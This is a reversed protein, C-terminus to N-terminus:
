ATKASKRRQNPWRELTEVWKQFSARRYFIRKGIPVYPLGNPMARWRKVTRVSVGIEKAMDAESLLDDILATM